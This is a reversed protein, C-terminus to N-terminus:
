PPGGPLHAAVTRELLEFARTLAGAELAGPPRLINPDFAHMFATACVRILMHAEEQVHEPVEDAPLGTQMALLGAVRRTLGALTLHVEAVQRAALQPNAKVATIRKILLKDASLRTGLSSVLFAKLDHYVGADSPQEPFGHFLSESTERVGVGLLADEKSAFYNFFTRPSVDAREAIQEITVQELGHELVLDLTANELAYRTERLKRERLGLPEQTPVRRM